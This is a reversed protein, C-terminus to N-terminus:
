WSFTKTLKFLASRCYCVRLQGKNDRPRTISFYTFLSGWAILVRRCSQSVLPAWYLRRSAKCLVDDVSRPGVSGSRPIRGASITGSCLGIDFLIESANAKLSVPDAKYSCAPRLNGIGGMDCRDLGERSMAFLIEGKYRSCCRGYGKGAFGETGCWPRQLM